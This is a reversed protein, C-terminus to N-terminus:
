AAQKWKGTWSALDLGTLRELEAVDPAYFDILRQRTEAALPPYSVERAFLNRIGKFLVTDRFPAVPRKLPALATRMPLPLYKVSSDNVRGCGEADDELPPLPAGVHACIAEICQAPEARIRDYLVVLVRDREFHDFWRRLHAGYRGNELFRPQDSDPSELYDRPLGKVQGRRFLMKYDSYARDVPNRLQVVLKAEPLAERLRAPADPHALYDASKEGVLQDPRADEFFERYWGTGRAFETSFFHPEPPPMFVRGSSTLQAKTWTTAAKVAGIVVFSPLPSSPM